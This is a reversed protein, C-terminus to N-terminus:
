ESESREGAHPCTPDPQATPPQAGARASNKEARRKAREARESRLRDDNAKTAAARQAQEARRRPSNTSTAM